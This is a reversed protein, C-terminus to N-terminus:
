YQAGDTQAPKQQKDQPSGGQKTEVMATDHFNTVDFHRRFEQERDMEDCHTVDLEFKVGRADDRIRDYLDPIDLWGYRFAGQHDNYHNTRDEPIDASLLERPQQHMLHGDGHRTLYPRTVYHATVDDIGLERSLLLAYFIGTDSPTTDATDRGTDKLLLGQGNEFILHDYAALAALDAVETMTQLFMCDSLFHSVVGDSSWTDRWSAPIEMQREYWQRVGQLYATWREPDAMFEDFLVIPTSDCRRITNWIGMGCSAKRGLQEEQILNAMMDYPTSWRCRRDRYIRAPKVVLEAYEKCFQIPNLIYYRSYYSDAGQCTASGFHQYTTSGHRTLISHGRQSGGNTLINLTPTGDAALRAVVTGKGEDGYNAGIVISAKKM